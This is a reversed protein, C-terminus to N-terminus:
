SNNLENIRGRILKMNSNKTDPLSDMIELISTLVDISTIDRLRESLVDESTIRAITNVDIDSLVNTMNLEPEIGTYERILGNELLLRNMRVFSVAETESYLEIVEDAYTFKTQKLQTTKETTYPTFEINEEPTALLVEIRENPNQGNRTNLRYCTIPEIRTKTYRKVTQTSFEVFQHNISKM